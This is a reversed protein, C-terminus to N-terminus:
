AAAAFSTRLGVRTRRHDCRRSYALWDFSSVMPTVIQPTVSRPECSRLTILSPGHSSLIFYIM